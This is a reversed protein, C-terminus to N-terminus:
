AANSLGCRAAISELTPFTRDERKIGIATAAISAISGFPLFIRVRGASHRANVCACVRALLAGSGPGATGALTVGRSDRALRPARLRRDAAAHSPASPDSLRLDLGLVVWPLARPGNPGWVPSRVSPAAGASARARRERPPRVTGAHLLLWSMSLLRSFTPRFALRAAPDSRAARTGAHLLLCSM